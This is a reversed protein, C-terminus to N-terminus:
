LKLSIDGCKIITKIKHDVINKVNTVKEDLEYCGFYKISRYFNNTIRLKGDIFFLIMDKNIM